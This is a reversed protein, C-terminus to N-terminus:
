FDSPKVRIIGKDTIKFSNFGGIAGLLPNKDPLHLVSDYKSKGQLIKLADKIAQGKNKTEDTITMFAKRCIEQLGIKEFDRKPVGTALVDYARGLKSWTKQLTMIGANALKEGGRKWLSSIIMESDIGTAEALARRTQLIENATPAKGAFAPPQKKNVPPNVSNYGSVAKM